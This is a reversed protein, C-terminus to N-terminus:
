TEEGLADRVRQVCDDLSKEIEFDWFRIVRWGAEALERNVRADRERNRAIKENWFRGSQGRYYDPHGHWFAGDTFIALRRGRFSIDPRGPVSKAHCRWGRVGAAFLARRLAVEPATDRNKVRSMLASRAEKTLQDAM